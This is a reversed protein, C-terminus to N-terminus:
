AARRDKERKDQGSVAIRERLLTLEKAQDALQERLAELEANQSTLREESKARIVQARKAHAKMAVAQAEQDALVAVREELQGIQLKQAAVTRALQSERRRASRLKIRLLVYTISVAILSVSAILLLGWLIHIIAKTEVAYIAIETANVLPQRVYPPAGKM